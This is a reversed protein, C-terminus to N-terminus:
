VRTVVFNNKRTSTKQTTAGECNCRLLGRSSDEGHFYSIDTSM